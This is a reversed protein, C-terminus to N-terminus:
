RHADVPLGQAQPELAHGEEALGCGGCAKVVRQGDWRRRVVMVVGVAEGIARGSDAGAAARATKRRNCCGARRCARRATARRRAAGSRCRASPAAARRSAAARSSPRRRPAASRRCRSQRSAEDVAVPGRRVQHRQQLQEDGVAVSDLRHDVAGPPARQDVADLVQQVAVRAAAAALVDVGVVVQAVREVAQPQVLRHVVRARQNSPSRFRGM